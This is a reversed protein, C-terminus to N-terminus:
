GKRQRLRSRIASIPRQLAGALTALSSGSATLEDLKKDDEATWPKYANPYESQMGRVRPPNQRPPHQAFRVAAIRHARRGQALMKSLDAVEEPTLNVSRREGGARLSLRFRFQGDECRDIDLFFETESSTARSEWIRM